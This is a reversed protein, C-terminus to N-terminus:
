VGRATSAEDDSAAEPKVDEDKQIDNMIPNPALAAVSGDDDESASDDDGVPVNGKSPSAPLSENDTMMTKNVLDHAEEEDTSEEEKKGVLSTTEGKKKELADDGTGAVIASAKDSQRPRRRGRIILFTSIAILALGGVISCSLIIIANSGMPDTSGGDSSAVSDSPETPSAINYLKAPVDSSTVVTAVRAEPLNTKIDYFITNSLEDMAKLQM